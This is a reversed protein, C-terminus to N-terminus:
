RMPNSPSAASARLARELTFRSAGEVCDGRAGRGRAGAARRWAIPRDLDVVCKERGGPMAVLADIGLATWWEVRSV